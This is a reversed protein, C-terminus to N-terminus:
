AELALQVLEDFLPTGLGTVPDWGEATDWGADEVYAGAQGSWPIEVGPCGYSRGEVVDTLGRGKLSYLWPNLFGLPPKGEKLLASNVLSIIAAFVPASASTGSVSAFYGQDYIQFNEAQAAVDPFARGGENYLGKWKDGLKSLYAQVAEDQYSPRTFRDSFGGSSYEVARETEIGTTGGVSTVYPCSAPFIPDFKVRESGDNAKCVIGAGYDGSSFIVSVGRLGLLWFLNCTTDTYSEPLTQENEGYSTTLVTPLEEDPLDLLYLLQELYPENTPENPDQSADPVTPGRGGTSYFVAPSRYSLAVAYDIDLAAETSDVTSNQENKGGNILEVTFNADLRDPAHRELFKQFDAYRAYQDLYGSIGIKNRPNNDAVYDGIKYLDKLCDPRILEDCTEGEWCDQAKVEGTGEECAQAKVEGSKGLPVVRKLQPGMNSFRTTPQILKISSHIDQPVSYELTRILQSGTKQNQFVYFETNLLKEATSVPVTFKIWAGDDQIRDDPVGEDRLWALVKESTAASPRMLEKIEDRKLHKRYLEHGPTAVNLALQELEKLNDQQLNLRFQVPVSPAAREKKVWGDPPTSLREVIELQVALAPVLSLSLALFRVLSRLTYM